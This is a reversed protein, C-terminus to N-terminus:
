ETEAGSVNSIRRALYYGIEGAEKSHLLTWTVPLSPLPDRRRTELYIYAGPVLWGGRELYACCPELLGSEFPPDLFAIDFSRVSGRLYALADGAIVEIKEASFHEVQLQIAQYARLDKEVMVVAAAGRSSAELGLVGSGAFLDLCRAGSIVPQLWNFLTERVRDPTPRLGPRASFDVKRGRWLGGIIRVQSRLPKARSRPPM